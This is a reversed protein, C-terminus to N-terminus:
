GGDTDIDADTSENSKPRDPDPEFGPSFTNDNDQHHQKQDVESDASQAEDAGPPSVPQAGSPNAQTQPDIAPDNRPSPTQTQGQQQSNAPKDNM